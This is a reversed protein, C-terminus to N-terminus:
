VEIVEDEHISLTQQNPKTEAGQKRGPFSKLVKTSLLNGQSDFSHQLITIVTQNITINKGKPSFDFETM